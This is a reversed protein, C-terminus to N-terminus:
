INNPKNMIIIHLIFGNAWQDIGAIGPLEDESAVSAAWSALHTDVPPEWEGHKSVSILNSLYIPIPWYRYICKLPIFMWKGAIKPNVLYWPKSGDGYWIQKTAQLMKTIKEMYQSSWDWSVFQYKESPNFGGVLYTYWIMSIIIIVSNNIDLTFRIHHTYHPHMNVYIYIYWVHTM